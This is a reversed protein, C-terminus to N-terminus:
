GEPLGAEADMSREVGLERRLFALFAEFEAGGLGRQMQTEFRERESATMAALDGPRVGTVMVVAESGDALSAAGLSRGSEMDPQPLDFATRVVAAPARSENREMGDARTWERETDAAIGAASAGAELRELAAQAAERARERSRAAVYDERVAEAVEQFARPREPQHEAVRVVLAVGDRPELVPSNYGDELVERSFAADVVAGVGFVGEGGERTLPETTGIELGLAEAPEELDPAEYALTELQTRLEEFRAQARRTRLREALADRRRAFSPPETTAVEELRIVHVGFDTVVPESLEGPALGDLAEEFPPVFTGRTALGLDGGQSASGPDDSYEEALAAFEAGGRLRERLERALAVAEEESRDDGTALLIHSARRQEQGEFAELEAAYEAEIEAEEVTVQAALEDRELRLYRLTVTEPARYRQAREEFFERLTAEDPELTGAFEEPAFRLWAVDRVQRALAALERLERETPVATERVAGVLQETLLDEALAERFTAPTFGASALALRYRDPDFSEGTRFQPMELIRRDVVPLPAALGAERAGEVLLARDIMGALVQDAVAAEDFLAPDWADGLQAMLQRRRREVQAAFASRTIERDGVVAVAPESTVFFNLAGFGFVSLVVIILGLIIWGFVGRAQERMKQLM